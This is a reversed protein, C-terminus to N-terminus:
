CSSLANEFDDCLDQCDEIGTSIRILNDKIGMQARREPGIEYFITHAAAIGLTRNDGLNSSNVILETANLFKFPDLGPALEFSFLAGPRKFLKQAREFQPHDKLGPYYVHSIKPHKQLLEALILANSTSREMRLALTESGVSLLHASEPSLSAGFDRLGKKRIQTLGWRQSDEMKYIDYIGPDNNWNYCGTDTVSGGLANGHGGFYKTLSNVVLSAKVKKPVFLYPSTLTNDVMYLIGRSYCLEGIGELDAVQTAPNAITEVLVMRTKPTLAKEVNKVDTADVFSVAVGLCDLTRLLSNTNGFLHVGSVIHDDKRLLALCTSGIAAMGTGFCVSGISEEMMTIKNELAQVTPNAQRAYAFGKAKNQFVAALDEAKPFDYAVSTHIPKHLSGHEPHDQRDSHIIQTTLGLKKENSNQKM